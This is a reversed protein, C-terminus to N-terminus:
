PPHDLWPNSYPWASHDTEQGPVSKRHARTRQRSPVTMNKRGVLEGAAVFGSIGRFADVKRVQWRVALVADGRRARFTDKKRAASQLRGEEEGRKSPTERGWQGIFIDGKRVARQLRRDGKMVAMQLHEREEGAMQLRGRATSQLHGRERAATQLRRGEEDDESPTGKGWWRRRQVLLLSHRLPWHVAYLALKRQSRYIDGTVRLPPGLFDNGHHWHLFWGIYLIDDSNSRKRKFM